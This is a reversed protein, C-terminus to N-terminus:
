NFEFLKSASLCRYITQPFMKGHYTNGTRLMFIIFFQIITNTFLKITERGELWCDNIERERDREIQPNKKGMLWFDDIIM